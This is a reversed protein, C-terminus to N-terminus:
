QEGFISVYLDYDPDGEQVGLMNLYPAATQAPTVSLNLSNPNVINGQLDRFEIAGTVKNVVQQGVPNGYVDKLTDYSNPMNITTGASKTKGVPSLSRSIEKGTTKDIIHMYGRDDISQVTNDNIGQLTWERGTNPDTITQTSGTSLGKMLSVIDSGSFFPDSETSGIGQYVIGTIPSTYTTGAPIKSLTNMISMDTAATDNKLKMSEMLFNNKAIALNFAQERAALLMKDARESALMNGEAIYADKAAEQERVLAQADGEAKNLMSMKASSIAFGSGQGIGGETGSIMREGTERAKGIRPAFISEAALRRKEMESERTANIESETPYTYIGTTDFTPTAATTGATTTTTSGPTYGSFDITFSEPRGAQEYQNVAFNFKGPDHTLHSFRGGHINPDM